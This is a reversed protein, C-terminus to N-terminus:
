GPEGKQNGLVEKTVELYARGWKKDPELYNGEAWENWSKIMMVPHDGGNTRAYQVAQEFSKRYSQPSSGTYIVGNAGSRPSNDWNPVAVPYIKGRRVTGPLFYQSAEEYTFIQMPDSSSFRKLFRDILSKNKRWLIGTQYSPAIAAFGASDLDWSERVNTAVFHIGKFGAEVALESFTDVFMKLDPHRLPRYVLFFPKGDIKLYRDDQFAPLLYEFHNIIDQKGPYAQEILVKNPSGHWIGTWTENAWGLCFPYDPEKSELVLQFPKELLMNGNGFWYHWYCFATVGHERALAAQRNRIEPDLLNYYGLEGPEVPQEHGKFLPRAKKVNTWETFGEGWWRNNEPIEHFQPLYFAIVEPKFAKRDTM